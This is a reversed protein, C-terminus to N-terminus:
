EGGELVSPVSSAAESVQVLLRYAGPSGGSDTYNERAEVLKRLEAKPTTACIQQYTREAQLLEIM